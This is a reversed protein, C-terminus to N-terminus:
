IHILSLHLVRQLYRGPAIWGIRLGPVLTKSFSSCLLVRGDEDFSKITRPRPYRYALDGYIDDEIIALDYRQALELLARRNAEPMVYGLPNNCTPTLQIAKIPWQELAMELAELNIGTLPDTPLELAKLGFGKLAQM